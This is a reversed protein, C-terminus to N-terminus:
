PNAVKPLTLPMTTLEATQFFAPISTVCLALQGFVGACNM